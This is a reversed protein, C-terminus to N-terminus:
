VGTLSHKVLQLIEPAHLSQGNLTLRVIGKPDLLVFGPMIVENDEDYMGYLQAIEGTLDSLLAFTLKQERAFSQLAPMSERCVGYPKVGLKDLDAAISKLGALKDRSDDFMVLAWHGELDKLRVRAGQSGDLEFDPAKEGVWVESEIPSEGAPNIAPDQPVPSPAPIPTPKRDTPDQATATGALALAIVAVLVFLVRKM